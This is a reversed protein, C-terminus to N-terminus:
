SFLQGIVLLVPSSLLCWVIPCFMNVSTFPRASFNPHVGVVERLNLVPLDFFNASLGM